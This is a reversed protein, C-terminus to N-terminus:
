SLREMIYRTVRTTTTTHKIPIHNLSLFSPLLADPITLILFVQLCSFLSFPPSPRTHTHQNIIYSFLFFSLFAFFRFSFVSFSTFTARFSLYILDYSSFKVFSPPDPSTIVSYPTLADTSCQLM